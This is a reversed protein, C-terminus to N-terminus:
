KAYSLVTVNFKNKNELEDDALEFALSKGKADLDKKLDHVSFSYLDSVFEEPCDLLDLLVTGEFEAPIIYEKYHNLLYEVCKGGGSIAGKGNKKFFSEKASWKEKGWDYSIMILDPVDTRQVQKEAM